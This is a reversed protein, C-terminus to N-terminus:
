KVLIYELAEIYTAKGLSEQLLSVDTLIGLCGQDELKLFLASTLECLAKLDHELVHLHRLLEACLELAVCCTFGEFDVERNLYQCLTMPGIVLLIGLEELLNRLLNTNGHIGEGLEVVAFEVITAQQIPLQSQAISFNTTCEDLALPVFEETGGVLHKDKQKEIFLWDNCVLLEQLHCLNRGVLEM